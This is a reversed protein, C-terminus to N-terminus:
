LEFLMMNWRGVIWPDAAVCFVIQSRLRDFMRKRMIDAGTIDKKNVV